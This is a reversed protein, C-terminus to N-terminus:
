LQGFAKLNGTGEGYLLFSTPGLTEGNSQGRWYQYEPHCRGEVQSVLMAWM